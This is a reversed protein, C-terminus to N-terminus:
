CIHFCFERVLRIQDEEM